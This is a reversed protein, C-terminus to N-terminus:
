ANRKERNDTMLIVEAEPQKFNRLLSSNAPNIQGQIQLEGEIKLDENGDLDVLDPIIPSSNAVSSKGTARSAEQIM